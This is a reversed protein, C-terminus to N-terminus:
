TRVSNIEDFVEHNVATLVDECYHRYLAIIEKPSTTDTVYHVYRMAVADERYPIVSLTTIDDSLTTCARLMHTTSPESKLDWHSVFGLGPLEPLPHVWLNIKDNILLDGDEDLECEIYAAKFISLLVDPSIQDIRLKFDTM